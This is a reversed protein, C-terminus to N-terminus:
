KPEQDSKDVVMGDMQQVQGRRLGVRAKIWEEGAKKILARRALGRMDIYVLMVNKATHTMKGAEAGYKHSIVATLQTSSVDVALVLNASLVLKEHRKLPCPPAGDVPQMSPTPTTPLPTGSM